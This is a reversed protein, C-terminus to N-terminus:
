RPLGLFARIVPHQRVEARSTPPSGPEVDSGYFGAFWILLGRNFYVYGNPPECGDLLPGARGESNIDWEDWFAERDPYPWFVWVAFREGDGSDSGAFVIPEVSSGPCVPDYADTLRLGDDPLAAALELFTSPLAGEVSALPTLTPAIPTTTPTPAAPTPTPTATVPVPTPTATSQAPAPTATAPAPTPTSAPTATSQAPAPTVTAPAPTPTSAPIATAPAAAAATPTATAPVPTATSVAEPDEDGGGRSFLALVGLIVAVAVVTYALRRM